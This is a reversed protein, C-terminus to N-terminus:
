KVDEAEQAVNEMKKRLLAVQELTWQDPEKLEASQCCEEALDLLGLGEAVFALHVWPYPSQPNLYAAHLLLPVAENLKGIRRAVNGAMNLADYSFTKEVSELFAVYADELLGRKYANMGRQYAIDNTTEASGVPYRGAFDPLRKLKISKFSAARLPEEWPTRDIEQPLVEQTKRLKILVEIPIQKLYFVEDSLLRVRLDNFTSKPVKAAESIPAAVVSIAYESERGRWIVSVGKLKATISLLKMYTEILFEKEKESFGEPWVIGNVAERRLLNSEALLESSGEAIRWTGRNKVCGVGFFMESTSQIKGSLIEEKHTTFFDLIPAAAYATVGILFSLVLANFRM